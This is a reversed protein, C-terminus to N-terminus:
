RSSAKPESKQKEVLQRVISPFDNLAIAHQPHFVTLGRCVIADAIHTTSPHELRCTNTLMPGPLPAEPVPACVKGSPSTQCKVESIIKDRLVERSMTRILVDDETRSWTGLGVIFGENLNLGIPLKGSSKIFSATIEAYTGDLYLIVLTGDAYWLKEGRPAGAVREWHLETTFVRNPDLETEQASATGCVLLFTLM